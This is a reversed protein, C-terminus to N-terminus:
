VALGPKLPALFSGGREANRSSGTYLQEQLNRAEAGDTLKNASTLVNLNVSSSLLQHVVM